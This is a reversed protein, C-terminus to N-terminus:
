ISMSRSAEDRAAGGRGRGTRVLHRSRVPRGHHRSPDLRRGGCRGRSSRRRAAHFRRRPAIARCAAAPEHEPFERAFSVPSPKPWEARRTPRPRPTRRRGCAPPRRDWRWRCGPAPSCRFITRWTASHRSRRWSSGSRRRWARCDRRGQQRPSAHYRSLLAPLARDDRAHRDHSRGAGGAAALLEHDDSVGVIKDIRGDLGAFDNRIVPDVAAALRERALHPNDLGAVFWAGDAYVWRTVGPRDLLRLM